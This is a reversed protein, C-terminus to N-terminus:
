AEPNRKAREARADRRWELLFQICLIGVGVSIFADAANFAPWSAYRFVHFDLFDVVYGVRIRDVLNGAAGGFILSVCAKLLGRGMEARLGIILILLLALFPIITFLLIRAWEPIDRFLGFVGGRNEVYTLNFFNDIVPFSAIPKLSNLALHKTYQDLVFILAVM